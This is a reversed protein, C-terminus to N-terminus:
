YCWQLGQLRFRHLSTSPLSCGPCFSGRLREVCTSLRRLLDLSFLAAFVIAKPITGPVPHGKLWVPIFCLWGLYGFNSLKHSAQTPQLGNVIGFFDESAQTLNAGSECTRLRFDCVSVGLTM